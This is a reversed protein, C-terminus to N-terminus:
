NIFRYKILSWVARVGDRVTHLKKGEKYGRPMTSIPVERIKYGSKILKATIENEFDFGASRMRMDKIARKPFLKYGTEVDTIWQKYLISSLISIFKNGIYHLLFQPTREDRKFNPFRKLRTGYIVEKKGKKLNRLLMEIYKPDYELDADQIIIYEGTSKRVGAWVAAGKGSNADHTILKIKPSKNRIKEIVSRTSDTSGDDIVIIEYYNLKPKLSLLKKLVIGVTKEENYVPVIISLTM